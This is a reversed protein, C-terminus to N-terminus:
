PRNFILPYEINGDCKWESTILLRNPHNLIIETYYEVKREKAQPQTYPYTVVFTYLDQSSAFFANAIVDTDVFDEVVFGTNM